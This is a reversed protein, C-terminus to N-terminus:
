KTHIHNFFRRGVFSLLVSLLFALGAWQINEGLTVDLDLFYKFYFVQIATIVVWKFLALSIVEQLSQKKSQM